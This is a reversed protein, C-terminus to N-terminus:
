GGYKSILDLYRNLSDMGFRALLDLLAIGQPNDPGIMGLSSTPTFFKWLIALHYDRVLEEAPYNLVGSRELESAYLDLMSDEVDDRQNLFALFCGLSVVSRGRRVNQWDIFIPEPDEDTGAFFLNEQRVDLHLFTTPPSTLREQANVVTRMVREGLTHLKPTDFRDMLVDWGAIFSATRSSADFGRIWNLEDLQPNEWWTAHSAALSKVVAAIENESLTEADGISRYKSLDELLLVFRGTHEDLQSFYCEPVRLGVSQNVQQYFCVEAKAGGGVRMREASAPNSSPLKAVITSPLESCNSGTNLHLRALTGFAAKTPDLLEISVGEIQSDPIYGGEHLAASLWVPTLEEPGSPISLM